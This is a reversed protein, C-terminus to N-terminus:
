ISLCKIQEVTLLADSNVKGLVPGRFQMPVKRLAFCQVVHPHSASM